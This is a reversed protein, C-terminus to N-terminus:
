ARGATCCAAFAAIREAALGPQRQLLLHPGPLTEIRLDPRLRQLSAATGASVLRDRDGELCLVPVPCALLDSRADLRLIEDLRHALVRAPVQSLSAQVSRVVEPPADRGALVWRIGFGPAPLSFMLRSILGLVRPVPPRVFGAALVVGCLGAPRSRAVALAIAASFSEGVLLFPAPPLDALVRLTLADCSLRERCPYGVARASIGRETLARALPDLLTGTGDLGPLLLASLTPATAPM